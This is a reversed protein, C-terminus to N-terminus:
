QLYADADEGIWERLKVCQPDRNWRVDVRHGQGLGKAGPLGKIGISTHKGNAYKTMSKWFRGDITYDGAWLAQKTAEVAQEILAARFATQALSAGHNRWQVWAKHRVNFYWLRDSGYAPQYKLAEMCTEIHNPAYWDDDEMFIVAGADVLALGQLVNSAFNEAGVPRAVHHHEQDMTLAAPVEGGDCVLWRDPQLTQRAMWRELLKIGEPRDCTPTIVTIM